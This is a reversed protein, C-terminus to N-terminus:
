YHEQGGIELQGQLQHPAQAMAQVADGRQVHVSPLVTTMNHDRFAFRRPSGTNLVPAEAEVKLVMLQAAARAQVHSDAVVLGMVQGIHEVRESAFVPEDHVFTALLKDGPIDDPTIVAWVGPAALVARLDLSLIRGNAVNSLIPAAHLTGETLPLDDIYAAQGQVHLHASEHRASTDLTATNM